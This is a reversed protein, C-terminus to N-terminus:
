PQSGPSRNKKGSPVITLERLSISGGTKDGAMLTGTEFRLRVLDTAYQSQAALNELAANTLRDEVLLVDNFTAIGLLRKEKENKVAQWYANTAVQSRALEDRGSRLRHTAVLVSSRINRALDDSHIALQNQIAQRQRYRGRAANNAPPWNFQLAAFGNLGEVNEAYSNFFRNIGGGQDLGGYGAKLTLDIQPELQNKALYLLAAASKEALRAAQLDAREQIALEVLETEAEPVLSPTTEQGPFSDSAAPLTKIEDSRLGMALGLEQRAEFVTQTAAISARTKEALNATLQDLEAAPVEKAEVLAKTNEFLDRARKESDRVIQLRSDAALYNWYSAGTRLIQMAITHELNLLSAEQDIKAAREEATAAKKGLGRALPVIVAFNVEARNQVPLGSLNDDARTMTVEPGIVIGSRLPKDIGARLTTLNDVLRVLTDPNQTGDGPYAVSLIEPIARQTREHGLSSSLKLDFKGKAEQVRGRAIEVEQNQLRIAPDKALTIRVAELLGLSGKAPVDSDTSPQSLCIAM